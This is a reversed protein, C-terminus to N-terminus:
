FDSLGEVISYHKCNKRYKVSMQQTLFILDTCQYIIFDAFMKYVSFKGFMHIPMDTICGVVRNGCNKAAM